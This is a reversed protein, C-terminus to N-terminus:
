FIGLINVIILGKTTISQTVQRIKRNKIGNGIHSDSEKHFFFNFM